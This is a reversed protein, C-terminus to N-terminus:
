FKIGLKKLTEEEELTLKGGVVKLFLDHSVEHFQTYTFLVEVGCHLGKIAEEIRLPEVALYSELVALNFALQLAAGPNGKYAELAIQWDETDPPQQERPKDTIPNDPM